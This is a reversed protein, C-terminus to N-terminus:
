VDSLFKDFHRRAIQIKVPTFHSGKSFEIAISLHNIEDSMLDVDSEWILVFPSEILSICLKCVIECTSEMRSISRNPKDLVEVDLGNGHFRARSPSQDSAM